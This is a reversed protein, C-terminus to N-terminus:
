RQKLIKTKIQLFDKWGLLESEILLTVAVIHKNEFEANQLSKEIEMVASDIKEEELPINVNYNMRNTM